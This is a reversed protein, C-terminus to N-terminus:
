NSARVEVKVTETITKETGSKKFNLHLKFKDGANLARKLDLLMIHMGAPKLVIESNAPIIIKDIATMKSVGKEDVFSQHLEVNNAVRMAGAGILIYQDNSTNKITLYAASNNNPSLSARAWPNIIQIQDVPKVTAASTTQSQPTTQVQTTTAGTATNTTANTAAAPTTANAAALSTCYNLICFFSLISLTVKKFM